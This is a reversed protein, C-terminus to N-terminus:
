AMHRGSIKESLISLASGKRQTGNMPALARLYGVVFSRVASTRSVGHRHADILTFLQHVTLDERQCTDDVAGWIEQELRLSTRQGNIMVNKSIM